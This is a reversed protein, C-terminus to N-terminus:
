INNKKVASMPTSITNTYPPHTPTPRKTPACTCPIPRVGGEGGVGGVCGGTTRPMHILPPDLVKPLAEANEHPCVGMLVGFGHSIKKASFSRLFFFFFFDAHWIFTKRADPVLIWPRITVRTVMPGHGM